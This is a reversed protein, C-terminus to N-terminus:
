GRTRRAALYLGAGICAVLASASVLVPQVGFAASLFPAVFLPLTGASNRGVRMIASVSGLNELKCSKQTLASRLVVLAGNAVGVIFQGTAACPISSTGVYLIAGLGEIVVLVCLFRLNFLRTPVRAAALSGLTAGIGAIATIWGMWESGAHLVDRYFLSELSDFAGFGLYGFFCICFLLGLAPSALTARAGEALKSLLPTKSKPAEAKKEPRLREVLTAALATSPLALVVLIAFTFKNSSAATIVGAITPGIILSVSTATNTLSNLRVLKVPSDDLFRPYTEVCTSSVSGALALMIALVVLVPFSMPLLLAGLGVFLPMLSAAVLVPRPGVHDILAGALSYGLLMVVNLILVLASVGFADLGLMYTACGIIGVSYCAQFGIQNFLGVCVLRWAKGDM